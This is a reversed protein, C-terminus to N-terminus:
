IEPRLHRFTSNARSSSYCYLSLLGLPTDHDGKGNSTGEQIKLDRNKFESLIYQMAAQCTTELSSYRAPFMSPSYTPNANAPVSEKHVTTPVYTDPSACHTLGHAPYAPRHVIQAVGM